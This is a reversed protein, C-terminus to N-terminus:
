PVRGYSEANRKRTARICIKLSWASKVMRKRYYGYQTVLIADSFHQEAKAPICVGQSIVTEAATNYVAWINKRHRWDPASRYSNNPNNNNVNGSSNVNWVNNNGLNASRLRVNQTLRCGETGNTILSKGLRFVTVPVYM